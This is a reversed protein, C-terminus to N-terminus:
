STMFSRMIGYEEIHHSLPFSGEIVDFVGASVRKSLSIHEASQRMSVKRSTQETREMELGSTFLNRRAMYGASEKM